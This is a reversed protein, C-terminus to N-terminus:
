VNRCWNRMTSDAACGVAVDSGIEVVINTDDEAVVEGFREVAICRGNGDRIAVNVGTEGIV